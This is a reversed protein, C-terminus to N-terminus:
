IVNTFIHICRLRLKESDTLLMIRLLLSLRTTFHPVDKTMRTLHEKPISEMMGWDILFFKFLFRATKREKVNVEYFYKMDLLMDKKDFLLWQDYM